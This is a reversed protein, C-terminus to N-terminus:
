ALFISEAHSLGDSVEETDIECIAEQAGIHEGETKFWKTLRRNHGGDDGSRLPIVFAMDESRESLLKAAVQFLLEPTEGSGRPDARIACSNHFLQVASLRSPVVATSCLGQLATHAQM